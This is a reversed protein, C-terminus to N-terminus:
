TSNVASKWVLVVPISWLLWLFLALSVELGTIFLYKLIAQLM